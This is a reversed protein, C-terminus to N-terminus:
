ALLLHLQSAVRPFAPVDHISPRHKHVSSYPTDALKRTHQRSRRQQFSESPLVITTSFPGDVIGDLRTDM